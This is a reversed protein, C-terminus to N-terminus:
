TSLGVRERQRVTTHTKERVTPQSGQVAIIRAELEASVRNRLQSSVSVIALSRGTATATMVIAATGQGLAIRRGTASAGMVIAATGQGIGTHLGTATATMAMDATGQGENSVFGTATANMVMDATAVDWGNLFFSTSSALPM